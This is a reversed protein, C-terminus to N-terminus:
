KKLNQLFKIFSVIIAEFWISLVIIRCWKYRCDVTWILLGASHKSNKSDILSELDYCDASSFPVHSM